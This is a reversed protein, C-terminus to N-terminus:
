SSSSQDEYKLKIHNYVKMYCSRCKLGLPRNLPHDNNYEQFARMWLQKNMGSFSGFRQQKLIELEDKTM